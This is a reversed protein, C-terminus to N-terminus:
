EGGMRAGPSAATVPPALTDTLERGDGHGEIVQIIRQALQPAARRALRTGPHSDGPRSAEQSSLFGEADEELARFDWVFINDGPEDWREKVWTSFQQARRAQEPDSAERVLAPATWLIFRKRPFQHLRAKLAQYQLQYNALTKAQSSVSSSGDDPLIRSVPFCHKFVIVDYDKVLDDLNLEGRDREDGQHAVWLNWYDYPYNAWPYGGTTAPYTLETIRYDTGHAANWRRLYDPVGSPWLGRGPAMAATPALRDALRKAADPAYASWWGYLRPRLGGSWVIEGTSHHLFVVRVPGKMPVSEGEPTARAGGSAEQSAAVSALPMAALLFAVRVLERIM